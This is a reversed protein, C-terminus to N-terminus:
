GPLLPELGRPPLLGNKDQLTDDQIDDCTMAYCPTLETDDNEEHPETSDSEATNLGGNLGGKETDSEVARRFHEEHTQLYHKKAIDPSNGLWETVVHIPFKEVLETELSSRLNQFTKGWPKLGARKIIRHAQTRLNSAADIGATIIQKQGAEAQEFVEMLFPELEPFLPCIRTDKGDIHETKPSHIVFRKQDWLIDDWTLGYLESPIRLGAYRALAFILKWQRNPCHNIVKRITEKTIFQQRKPNSVTTTPIGDFPNDVILRKKIAAAFFQKCRKCRRRITNEALGKELMHRRFEEAHYATFDGINMDTDCFDFLDNRAAKMNRETNPKVDTRGEIYGDIWGALSVSQKRRLPKALGLAVLRTRIPISLGSLWEQVSVSIESGSNKASFLSEVNVKATEAQRKTIRGFSIRPRDPHEGESLRIRYTKKGQNHRTEISAM